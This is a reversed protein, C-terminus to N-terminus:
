INLAVFQIPFIRWEGAGFVTRFELTPIHTGNRKLYKHVEEEMKHFKLAAIQPIVVILLRSQFINLKIKM